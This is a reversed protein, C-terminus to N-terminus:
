DAEVLEWNKAYSSSYRSDRKAKNICEKKTKGEFFYSSDTERRSIVRGSKSKLVSLFTVNLRHLKNPTTMKHLNKTISVALTPYSTKGVL